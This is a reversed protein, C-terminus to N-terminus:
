RILFRELNSYATVRSSRLKFTSLPLAFQLYRKARLDRKIKEKEKNTRDTHIEYIDVYDALTVVHEKTNKENILVKLSQNGFTLDM